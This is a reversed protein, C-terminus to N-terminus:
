GGALREADAHASFVFREDLEGIIDPKEYPSNQAAWSAIRIKALVSCFLASAPGAMLNQQM